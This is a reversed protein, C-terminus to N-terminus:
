SLAQEAMSPPAMIVASLTLTLACIPQFPEDDVKFGNTGRNNGIVSNTFFLRSIGEGNGNREEGWGGDGHNGLVTFEEMDAATVTQGQEQSQSIQIKM